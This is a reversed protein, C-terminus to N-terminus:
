DYENPEPAAEGDVTLLDLIPKGSSGFLRHLTKAGAITIQQGLEPYFYFAVISEILLIVKQVDESLKIRPSGEIEVLKYVM